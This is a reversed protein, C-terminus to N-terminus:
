VCLSVSVCLCLPVSVCLFLSMSVCLYRSVSVMVTPSSPSPSLPHSQLILSLFPPIPHPHTPHHPSHPPPSPSPTQKAQTLQRAGSRHSRACSAFRHSTTSLSKCGQRSVASRAPLLVKARLKTAGLGRACRACRASLGKARLNKAGLTKRM